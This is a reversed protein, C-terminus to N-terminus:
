KLLYNIAFFLILPLAIFKLNSLFREGMMEIRTDLDVIIEEEELGNENIITRLEIGNERILM